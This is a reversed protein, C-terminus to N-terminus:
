AKFLMENAFRRWKIVEAMPDRSHKCAPRSFLSAQEPLRNDVINYTASSGEIASMATM